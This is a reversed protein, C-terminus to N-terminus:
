TLWTLQFVNIHIYSSCIATVAQRTATHQELAVSPSFWGAFALGTLGKLNAEIQLTFVM